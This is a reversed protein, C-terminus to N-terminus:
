QSIEGRKAKKTKQASTHQGSECLNVLVDCPVRDLKTGTVSNAHPATTKTGMENNNKDNQNETHIQQQKQKTTITTITQTCQSTKTKNQKQNKTKTKKSTQKRNSSSEINNNVNPHSRNVM